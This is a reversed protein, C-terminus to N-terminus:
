ARKLLWLGLACSAFGTAAGAVADAAYHYRGYVTAFAVLTAYVPVGIRLWPKDRFIRRAALAAAVAGSVHASPFVSTHIGQRALVWLSLKRIPTIFAPLDRGPFVTRPPESPWFPFQAYALCLGLIYITLFIDAADLRRYAYIMSMMFVPLAYVLLYSLELISPLVPGALEIAPKLGWGYLLRRDWAVWANELRFQTHPQAFWGMEHYCLIMVALPMWDRVVTAWQAKPRRRALTWFLAYACFVGANAALVKGTQGKQLPLVLALVATYSLYVALIRESIRAM